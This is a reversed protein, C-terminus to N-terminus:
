VNSCMEELVNRMFHLQEIEARCHEEEGTSNMFFDHGLTFDDVEYSSINKIELDIKKILDKKEELNLESYIKKLQEKM